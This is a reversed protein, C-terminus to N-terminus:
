LKGGNRESEAVYDKIARDIPIHAKRAKEDVWGVSDLRAQTDALLKSAFNREFPTQYVIGIEDQKGVPVQEPTYTRISGESERQIAIAWVIGLAFIVLAVVGITIIKGSEISDGEQRLDGSM